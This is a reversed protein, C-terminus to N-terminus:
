ANIRLIVQAPWGAFNPGVEGGSDVLAVAEMLGRYVPAFQLSYATDSGSFHGLEHAIVASLEGRSLVRLMPLSLCLTEGSLQQDSGIVSVKASTAFFEDQLGLIVNDPRRASIRDAVSAILGHLKPFDASTAITALVTATAPRFMRFAATSVAIAGIFCAAGIGGVLFFHVRGAWYAELHYVGAVLIGANILFLVAVLLIAVFTLPPFVSALLSRNTGVIAALAWFLAPVFLGLLLSVVSGIGLWNIPRIQECASVLEPTFVSNSRPLFECTFTLVLPATFNLQGLAHWLISWYAIFGLLPIACIVLIARLAAM